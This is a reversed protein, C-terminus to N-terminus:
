NLVSLAIPIGDLRRYDRLVVCTQQNFEVIPSSLSIICEVFSADSPCLLGVNPSGYYTDKHAGM